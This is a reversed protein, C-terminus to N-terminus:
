RTLPSVGTSLSDAIGKANLELGLSALGTEVGNAAKDCVFHPVYGLAALAMNQRSQVEDNQMGFAARDFPEAHCRDGTLLPGAQPWAGHSGCDQRGM